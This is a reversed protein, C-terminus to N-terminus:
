SILGVGITANSVRTPAGGNRCGDCIVGDPLSLGGSFSHHNCIGEPSKCGCAYRLIAIKGALISLTKRAREKDAESRQFKGNDESDVRFNHLTNMVRAGRRHGKADYLVVPAAKITPVKGPIKSFPRKRAPGSPSGSTSRKRKMGSSKADQPVKEAPMNPIELGQQGNTVTLFEWSLPDISQGEQLSLDLPESNLSTSCKPKQNSPKRLQPVKMPVRLADIDQQKNNTTLVEWRQAATSEGDLLPLRWPEPHLSTNPTRKGNSSKPLRPVKVPTGLPDKYQQEDCITPVGWSQAATSEGGLLSLDWPEPNLSPSLTGKRNSSKPPQPTSVPVGLAIIDRQGNYMTRTPIGLSQGATSECDLFSFDWPEAMRPSGQRHKRSSSKLLQTTKESPARLINIDQQRHNMNQQRPDINHQRHNINQQGHSINNHSTNQQGHSINRQRPDINQQRHSIDHQRHSINEQGHDMKPVGWSEYTSQDDLFSFDWPESKVFARLDHLMQLTEEDAMSPDQLFNM